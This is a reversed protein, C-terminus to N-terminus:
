GGFGGNESTYMWLFLVRVLAGKYAMNLDLRWFSLPQRPHKLPKTWGVGVGPTRELSGTRDPTRTHRETWVGPANLPLDECSNSDCPSCWSAQHFRMCEDLLLRGGLNRFLLKLTLCLALSHMIGYVIIQWCGPVWATAGSLSRVTRFRTLLGFVGHIGYIGVKVRWVVWIYAYIAYM